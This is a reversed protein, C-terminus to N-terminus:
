LSFSISLSINKIKIIIHVSMIRILSSSLFQPRILLLFEILPHLVFQSKETFLSSHGM